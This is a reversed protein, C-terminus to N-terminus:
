RDTWSWCYETLQAALTVNKAPKTTGDPQFVTLNVLDDDVDVIIAVLPTSRNAPQYFVFSGLTPIRKVELPGEHKKRLKPPFMVYEPGPM